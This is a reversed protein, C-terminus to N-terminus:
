QSGGQEVVKSGVLLEHGPSDTQADQMPAREDGTSGRCRDTPPFHLDLNLCVTLKTAAAQGPSDGCGQDLIAELVPELRTPIRRILGRGGECSLQPNLRRPFVLRVSQCWWLVPAGHEERRLRFSPCCSSRHRGTGA